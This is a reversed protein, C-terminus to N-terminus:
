CYRVEEAAWRRDGLSLASARPAWPAETAPPPGPTIVTVACPAHVLGGPPYGPHCTAHYPQLVLHWGFSLHIVPLTAEMVCRAESACVPPGPIGLM